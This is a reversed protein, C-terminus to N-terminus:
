FAIDFALLLGHLTTDWEFHRLGSGTEFDQYLARYGGMVMADHNFVSVRYGLLAVNHWSFDSGVGFGGIDGEIILAVKETLDASVRGGIIPDVWDESKGVTPLREFDLQSDLATYRMGALADFRVSRNAANMPWEGLRYTGAWELYALETSADANVPGPGVDNFDLSMYTVDFFTAWRGKRAQVRGEFALVSDAADIVDLFDADISASQSAVTFDGDVSPAWAYPTVNFQWSDSSSEAAWANPAIFCVPMLIVIALWHSANM